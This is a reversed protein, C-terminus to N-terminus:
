NLRELSWTNNGVYSPPKPLLKGFYEHNLQAM